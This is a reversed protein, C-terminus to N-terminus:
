NWTCWRCWGAWSNVIIEHRSAFLAIPHGLFWPDFRWVLCRNWKWGHGHLSPLASWMSWRNWLDWQFITDPFNLSFDKSLKGNIKNHQHLCLTSVCVLDQYFLSKIKFAQIYLIYINLFFSTHHNALHVRYFKYLSIYQSNCHGGM